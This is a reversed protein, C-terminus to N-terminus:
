GVVFNARGAPAGASISSGGAAVTARAAAVGSVVTPSATTKTIYSDLNSTAAQLIPAPITQVTVPVGAAACDDDDCGCESQANGVQVTAAPTVNPAASLQSAPPTGLYINGMQIPQANPYSPYSPEPVIAGSDAAPSAAQNEQYLYYLVAVAGLALLGFIYHDKKLTM